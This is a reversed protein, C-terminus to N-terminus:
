RRKREAKGAKGKDHTGVSAAARNRGAPSFDSWDEGSWTSVYSGANLPKLEKGFIGLKVEGEGTIEVGTKDERRVDFKLRMGRWLLNFGLRGWEAPLRPSIYIGEASIRVGALGMVVQQWLGGLAAVHIGGTANGHTLDIEAGLRFYKWAIEMLGLRAAVLGHIAPSLSSGHCTRPEYYAFSNKIVAPDLEEELLYLAMVVDAQKVLLSAVIREHGLLVDVPASRPELRELDIDELNFYGDFQEIVGGTKEETTPPAYPRAGADTPARGTKERGGAFAGTVAAASAAPAGGGAAGGLASGLYMGAAVKLWRPPEGDDFGIKGALLLWEQPRETKMWEVAEAARRLNWRAMANTYFNDDVGEDHYEDPGEVGLIHFSGDGATVRSAWFRATEIILEAGAGAMFSDDGSANWYSWAGWAVAASIHHELKGSLVPAVEGRADLVAAPTMDAGTATAEWSFLAGAYGKRIANERAAALTHFRYMIMNRATPPHTFIFFPLIFMEADWFIHGKYISGTLARASISIREDHPNGASILHYCVFNLWQQSGPDDVSIAAVALRERWAQAQDLLLRSFGRRALLGAHPGAEAAPDASERSTYVSVYKEIRVTQGAAARWSWRDFVGSDDSQSAHAPEILGAGPASLQHQAMSIGTYVTQARIFAGGDGADKEVIELAPVCNGCIKLGTRVRIDARYNEPWLTIQQVLGHPDALPAFSTFRILTVRNHRGRHRWERYLVGKRMDLIRRQELLSKRSVYLHEGGVTIRTFFWDPAVTLEEISEESTKDYLGALLTAAASSRVQEALSGRSGLYGNGVALLSEVERERLHDFGTEVLVSAPDDAPLMERKLGIQVRILELFCAPGGGLHNVAAPVGNPEPGVSVYITAPPPAELAAEAPEPGVTGPARAPGALEPLVMRFDSGEFGAIPGFEDGLVFMDAFAINKKRCLEGSIWRMSDSKDTLGVEIHKVDSTIRAGALGFRRAYYATLEFASHIGGAFGGGRLREETKKILEGIQSKPPDPWEPILDIKRRNLRDFVVEVSVRSRSEIDQRVATAIRDLLENEHPTAEKRYLLVPAGSEGFGYVESGRNTCVHLHRKHPGNILSCVQRDINGFNTGTVIVILIELKLLEELAAAVETADANRDPVATGDWDFAIIRFPRQQAAQPFADLCGPM